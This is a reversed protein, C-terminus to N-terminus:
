GDAAVQRRIEASIILVLLVVVVFVAIAFVDPGRLQTFTTAPCDVELVELDEERIEYGSPVGLDLRTQQQADEAEDAVADEVDEDRGLEAADGVLEEGAL